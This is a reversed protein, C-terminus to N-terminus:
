GEILRLVRHIPPGVKFVATQPAAIQEVASIAVCSGAVGFWVRVDEAARILVLAM